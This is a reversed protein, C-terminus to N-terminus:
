KLLYKNIDLSIMEGFYREDIGIKRMEAVMKERVAELKAREEAQSAICNISTLLTCDVVLM